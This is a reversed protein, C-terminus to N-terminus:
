GRIGKSELCERLSNRVRFFLVGLNTRTIDLVKCIEESSLGVIERFVFVMRQPTSVRQLCDELMERFEQSYVQLDVPPPPNAWRGKASFRQDVMADIDDMAQDKKV